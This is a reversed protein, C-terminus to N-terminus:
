STFQQASMGLWGTLWGAPWAADGLGAILLSVPLSLSLPFACPMAQCDLACRFRFAVHDQLLMGPLRSRLPRRHLPHATPSQCTAALLPACYAGGRAAWGQSSVLRPALVGGDTSHNCQMKCQQAAADRTTPQGNRASSDSPAVTAMSPVWVMRARASPGTAPSNPGHRSLQPATDATGSQHAPHITSPPSLEGQCQLDRSPYGEQEGQAPPLSLM